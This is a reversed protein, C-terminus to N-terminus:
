LGGWGVALALGLELAATRYLLRSDGARLEAQVPSYALTTMVRVGPGSTPGSRVQLGLEFTPVAIGLSQDPGLFTGFSYRAAAYPGWSVAHTVFGRYLALSPGAMLFHAGAASPIPVSGYSGLLGVSAFLGLTLQRELALGLHL